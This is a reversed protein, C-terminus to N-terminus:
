SQVPRGLLRDYARSVIRSAIRTPEWSRKELWLVRRALSYDVGRWPKGADASVCANHAHLFPISPDLGARLATERADQMIAQRTREGIAEVQIALAQWASVREGWTAM